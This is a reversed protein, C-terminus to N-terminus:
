DDTPGELPMNDILRVSGVRAAVVAVAPLTHTPELTGPDVVELYDLRTDPTSDIRVRLEEVDLAVGRSARDQLELLARSLVTAHDRDSESLLLNRSSLALGSAERETPVAHVDVELDLDAVMRRIIMLQQVDKQGFYAHLRAGDTRFVHFLKTVVTAVGDFHGPRSAGELVEGMRGASVRVRPGDPYGPYMEEVAPAFVLDVGAAEFEARDAALDRPYREYDVPDNFQLPNVFLSAVVVPHAARAAAALARHGSHIAGMTPVLGVTGAGREVVLDAMATRLEAITTVFRTRTRM